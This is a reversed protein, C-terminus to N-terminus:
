FGHDFSMKATDSWKEYPVGNNDVVQIGLLWQQRRRRESDSLMAAFRDNYLKERYAEYAAYGEAVDAM